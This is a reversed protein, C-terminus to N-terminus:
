KFGMVFKAEKKEIEVYANQASCTPCIAPGAMGYHIDNCVNCRWFKKEAM